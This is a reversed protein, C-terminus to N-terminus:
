HVEDAAGTDFFGAHDALAETLALIGARMRLAPEVGAAGGTQVALTEGTHALNAIAAASNGRLQRSRRSLDAALSM